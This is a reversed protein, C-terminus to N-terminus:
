QPFQNTDLRPLTLPHDAGLDAKRFEAAIGISAGLERLISLTMDNYAGYPYSMIWNSTPAGVEELFELSASIDEKQKQYNIKNLWKYIEDKLAPEM